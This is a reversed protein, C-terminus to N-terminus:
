SRAFALRADLTGHRPLRKRAKRGLKITLLLRRLPKTQARATAVRRRKVDLKAVLRGRAPLQVHVRVTRGRKLGKLGGARSIARRLDLAAARLAADLTDAAPAPRFAPPTAVPAAATVVVKQSAKATAGQADTVTLRATYTGTRPYTFSFSAGSGDVTGDGDADWAYAAIPGEGDASASADFSVTQGAASASFSAAPALNGPALCAAPDCLFGSDYVNWHGALYSGPAPAPNFYDDGGCDITTPAAGPCDIALGGNPGLRGGDDYCLVDEGQWCHGNGTAHPASDQVGGLLHLLEHLSTTQHSTGYGGSGDGFVFGTYGGTNAGNLAGPRDDTPRSAVGTTGDGPALGDAFVLRDRPGPEPGLAAAVDASLLDARSSLDLGLYDGRSRPLAVSAVDVYNAGCATGVDFRVSRTGGSAGIVAEAIGRADSQILDAYTGFRDPVDAPHAYVVKVTAGAVANATGDTGTETGCWSDALRPAGLATARFMTRQALDVRLRADAGAPIRDAHDDAAAAAPCAAGALLVLALVRRV